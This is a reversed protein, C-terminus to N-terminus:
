IPSPINQTTWGELNKYDEENKRIIKTAKRLKKINNILQLIGTIILGLGVIALILGLICLILKIWNQTIAYMTTEPVAEAVVKCGIMSLSAIISGLQQLDVQSPNRPTQPITTDPRPTPPAPDYPGPPIDAKYGCKPCANGVNTPTLVYKQASAVDGLLTLGFILAMVIGIILLTFGLGIIIGWQIVQNRAKNYIKQAQTKEQNLDTKEKNNIQELINQPDNNTQITIGTFSKTFEDLSYEKNGTGTNVTVSTNTLSLIQVYRINGNPDIIQVIKNELETITNHKEITVPNIGQKLLFNITQTAHNMCSPPLSPITNHETNNNSNNGIDTQKTNNKTKQYTLLEKQNITKQNHKEFITEPKEPPTKNKKRQNKEAKEAKNILHFGQTILKIKGFFGKKEKTQKQYDEAQHAIEEMEIASAPTIMVILLVLFLSCMRLIHSNLM